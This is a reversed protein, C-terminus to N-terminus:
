NLDSLFAKYSEQSSQTKDLVDLQREALVGLRTNEYKLHKIKNVILRRINM